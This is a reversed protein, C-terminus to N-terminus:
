LRSLTFDDFTATVREAAGRDYLVLGTAGGAAATVERRFREHFAADDALDPNIVKVAVRRGAGDEALFVSPVHRDRDAPM